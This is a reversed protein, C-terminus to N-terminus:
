EWDWVGLSRLSRLVFGAEFVGCDELGGEVSVVQCQVVDVVQGELGRCEFSNWGTGVTSSPRHAKYCRRCVRQFRVGEVRWM